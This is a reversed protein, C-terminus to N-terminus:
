IVYRENRHYSTDYYRELIVAVDRVDRYMAKLIRLREEHISLADTDKPRLETVLHIRHRLIDLQTRYAKALELLSNDETRKRNASSLRDLLEQFYADEEAYEEQRAEKTDRLVAAKGARIKSARALAESRKVRRLQDQCDLLQEEVLAISVRLKRRDAGESQDLKEELGAKEQQLRAKERQLEAKQDVM